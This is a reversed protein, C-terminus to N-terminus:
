ACGGPPGGHQHIGERRGSCSRPSAPHGYGPNFTWKIAGTKGDVAFVKGQTTEIYLVGGVAVATAQQFEKTSGSELNDHWAGGLAAINGKNVQALSSYNQNGLNGGVKPFDKVTPECCSQAHTQPVLLLALALLMPVLVRNM